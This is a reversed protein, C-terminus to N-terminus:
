RGFAGARNASGPSDTGPRLAGLLKPQPEASESHTAPPEPTQAHSPTLQGGTQEESAINRLAPEERAWSTYLGLKSTTDTTPRLGEGALEDPPKDPTPDNRYANRIYEGLEGQSTVIPNGKASTGLKELARRVGVSYALGNM